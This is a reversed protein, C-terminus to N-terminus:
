HQLNEALGDRLLDGTLSALKGVLVLIFGAFIQKGFLGWINKGNKVGSELQYFNAVASIGIFFGRWHILVFILGAVIIMGIPEEFIHAISFKDWSVFLFHMMTTFFIAIGRLFDVSTLRKM